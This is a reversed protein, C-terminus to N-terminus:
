AKEKVSESENNVARMSVDRELGELEFKLAEYEAKKRAIYDQTLALRHNFGEPTLLYATKTLKDEAKLFREIKLFGKEVLAQVIYNTRGLSFGIAHALARQNYEPHQELAKLVRFHAEEEPTM